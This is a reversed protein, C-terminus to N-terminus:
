RTTGLHKSHKYAISFIVDTPHVIITGDELQLSVRGAEWYVADVTMKKPASSTRFIIEIDKSM